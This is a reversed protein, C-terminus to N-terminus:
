KGSISITNVGAGALNVGNLEVDGIYGLTTTGLYQREVRIDMGTAANGLQNLTIVLGQAADVDVGVDVTLNAGGNDLITITGAGIAGGTISGGADFIASNLVQIGGTIVTSLQIMNGQAENGLQINMSTGGLVITASQMILPSEDTFGWAGDDRNSNGVTLDGTAISTGAGIDVNVNLVPANGSATSSDGADVEIRVGGVTQIHVGSMIIAGDFSYTTSPGIDIGDTDHVIVDTTVDLNLNIAIGDQGTVGSLMSDDLNEVAYAGMPAAAMATVLALKKFTM